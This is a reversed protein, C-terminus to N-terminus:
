RVRRVKQLTILRETTLNKVGSAVGDIVTIKENPDDGLLQTCNETAELAGMKHSNIFHHRLNSFVKSWNNQIKDLTNNTKGLEILLYSSRAQLEEVLESTNNKIKSNLDAVLERHNRDKTKLESELKEITNELNRIQIRQAEISQIESIAQNRREAIAKNKGRALVDGKNTICSDSDIM